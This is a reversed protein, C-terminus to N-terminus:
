FCSCHEKTYKLSCTTQRSSLFRQGNHPRNFCEGNADAFLTINAIDRRLLAKVMEAVLAKGIGRGQMLLRLVIEIMYRRTLIDSFARMGMPPTIRIRMCCPHRHSCGVSCHQRQECASCMVAECHPATCLAKSARGQSCTRAQFEPDVLVDWITANFVHDSTCRALGILREEPPAGGAAGRRLVVSSVLFSNSLATELKGPQRAPWGM